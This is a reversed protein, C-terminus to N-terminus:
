TAEVQISIVAYTIISASEVYFAVWDGATIAIDWSILNNDSNKMENALLPQESGTITDEVTPPFADFTDKWIDVQISGVLDAVVEWGTITGSFPIRQYYIKGAVIPSDGGDLTLGFSRTSAGASAPYLRAAYYNTGDYWLSFIDIANASTTIEPAEGSSWIVTGPWVVNKASSAHQKVKLVYTAGPLPNSLTLTVNGSAGSLDLVQQNGNNLNITQTTGVPGAVLMTRQGIQGTTVLNGNLDRTGDTRFYQTHDDDGLEGLRDHPMVGSALADFWTLARADTHYQTHDDDLLGDLLGHDSTGVDGIMTSDIEGAANLKVPANADNSGSSSNKYETKRFYRENLQTHTDPDIQHNALANGSGTLEVQTLQEELDIQGQNLIALLNKLERKTALNNSATQLENLKREIAALRLLETETLAM